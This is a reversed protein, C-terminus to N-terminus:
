RTSLIIIRAGFTYELLLLKQKRACVFLESYKLNQLLQRLDQAGCAGFSLLTRSQRSLRSAIESDPSPVIIVSGCALRKSVAEAHHTRIHLRTATVRHDM